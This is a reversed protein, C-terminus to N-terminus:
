SSFYGYLGGIAGGIAGGVPGGVLTGVLMGTGFGGLTSSATIADKSNTVSKAYAKSAEAGAIGAGITKTAPSKLATKLAPNGGNIKEQNVESIPVFLQHNQENKPSVTAITM